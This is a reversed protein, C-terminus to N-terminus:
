GSSTAAGTSPAPAPPLPLAARARRPQGGGGPKAAVPTKGTSSSAAWASSRHLNSAGAAPTAAVAAYVSPLTRSQRAASRARASPAATNTSWRPRVIRTCAPGMSPCCVAQVGPRRLTPRLSGSRSPNRARKGRCPCARLSRSRWRATLFYAISSHQLALARAHRQLMMNLLPHSESPQRHQQQQAIALTDELHCREVVFVGCKGFRHGKQPAGRCLEAPTSMCTCCSCRWQGVFRMSLLGLRQFKGVLIQIQGQLSCIHDSM